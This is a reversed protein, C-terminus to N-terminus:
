VPPLASDRYDTLHIIGAVIITDLGTNILTKQLPVILSVSWGSCYVTSLLIGSPKIESEM